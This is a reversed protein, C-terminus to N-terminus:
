NNKVLREQKEMEHVNVALSISDFRLRSMGETKGVSVNSPVVSILYKTDKVVKTHEATQMAKSIMRDEHEKRIDQDWFDEVSTAGGSFYVSTGLIEWRARVGPNTSLFVKVNTLRCLYGGSRRRSPGYDYLVVVSVNNDVRSKTVAERNLISDIDSIREGSLVFEYRSPTFTESFVLRKEEVTEVSLHERRYQAVKDALNSLTTKNEGRLDRELTLLRTNLEKAEYNAFYSKIDQFRELYRDPETKEEARSGITQERDDEDYRRQARNNDEKPTSASSGERTSMKPTPRIMPTEIQGGDPRSDLLDELSFRGTVFTLITILAAIMGVIQWSKM